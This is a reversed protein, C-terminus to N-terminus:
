SMLDKLGYAAYAGRLYLPRLFPLPFKPPVGRVFDPREDIGGGILRAVARGSWTGMAVGNGHYCMAFYTGPHEEWAGVHPVMDQALCVLGSWRHTIEVHRWAPFYDRFSAEIAGLQRALAQPEASLGGRGGFMFRGDPLLRFYHLLHRIDFAPAPNTWGQAKLEARNMPRTVVISSLAPLVRGGFAGHLDEPTYGATAMLVRNARVRGRATVLLHRGGARTWGSVETGGHIRAGAKVAAAALGNVYKWPNLGFGVPNRVGAFLGPSSLGDAVLEEKTVFREGAGFTKAMYDAEARLGDALGPRHALSVEGASTRDIVMGEREAIEAVLEVSAKQGRWFIRAQELGFKAVMKAWPLKSSGMSCFGGNRGSGGWGPYARDLVVAEIGHDRALHYATSLGTFGGGIIAVDTEIEGELAPYAPMGAQSDEWWSGIPRAPDFASPHYLHKM